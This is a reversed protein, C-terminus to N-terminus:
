TFYHFCPGFLRPGGFIYLIPGTVMAVCWYPFSRKIGKQWTIYLLGGMTFIVGHQKFWFASVLILIGILNWKRSRDLDILYSGVLASCLLWSDSHATDLYSDMVRYPSAFLGVAAIGLWVSGTKRRVVLYLIIGSGAIGLIAVFRLTFLNVGFIWSFPV